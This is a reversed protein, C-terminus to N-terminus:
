LFVGSPHRASYKKALTHLAAVNSIVTYRPVGASFFYGDNRFANVHHLADVHCEGSTLCRNKVKSALNLGGLQGM